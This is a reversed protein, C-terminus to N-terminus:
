TYLLQPQNYGTVHWGNYDYQWTNSSLDCTFSVPLTPHSAATSAVTGCDFPRDFACTSARTENPAIQFLLIPTGYTTYNGDHNCYIVKYNNVTNIYNTAQIQLTAECKTDNVVINTFYETQYNATDCTGGPINNMTASCPCATVSEILDGTCSCGLDATLCERTRIWQTNADNRGYVSWDSLLGGTPCCSTTASSKDTPIPGCIYSGNIVMPLYPSCCSKQSPYTCVNTNCPIYRSTDGTCNCGARQSVCRRTYYLSACSGCSASCNSSGTVAWETWIGGTPCGSSTCVALAATASTFSFLLLLVSIKWM